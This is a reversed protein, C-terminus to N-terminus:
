IFQKFTSAYEFPISVPIFGSKLKASGSIRFPMDKFAAAALVLSIINKYILKPSFTVEFPLDAMGKAPVLTQATITTYGIYVDNIYVEANLQKITAEIDSTNTFRMTFRVTILDPSINVFQINILDKKYNALLKRQRAIYAWTGGGALVLVSLALIKKWNKM